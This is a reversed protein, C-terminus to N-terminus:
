RPRSWVSPGYHPAQAAVGNRRWEEQEPRGGSSWREDTPWGHNVYTVGGTNPNIAQWQRARRRRARAEWAQEASWVAMEALWVLLAAFQAILKVLLVALQALGDGCGGGKPVLRGVSRM